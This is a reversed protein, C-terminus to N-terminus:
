GLLCDVNSHLVNMCQQAPCKCMVICSMCVDSHLVNVQENKKQCQELERKAAEAKAAHRESIARLAVREDEQQQQLRGVEGEAAAAAAHAAQESSRAAHRDHLAALLMARLALWLQALM